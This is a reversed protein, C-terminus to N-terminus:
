SLAVFLGSGYCIVGFIKTNNLVFDAVKAGMKEWNITLATIGNDLLRMLLPITYALVGLILQWM